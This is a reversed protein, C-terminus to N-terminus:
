LGAAPVGGPTGGRNAAAEEKEMMLLKVEEEAGEIAEGDANLLSQLRREREKERAERQLRKKEAIAEQKAIRREEKIDIRVDQVYSQLEAERITAYLSLYNNRKANAKSEEERNILDIAKNFSLNEVGNPWVKVIRKGDPYFMTGSKALYGNEFSGVYKIGTDKSYYTGRGNFRGLLFDGEYYSGTPFTLKGIGHRRGKLWVGEYTSGVAYAMKGEGHPYGNLWEGEYTTGSSYVAKGIGNPRNRLFTGEYTLGDAFKYIGAGEMDGNKWDGDYSYFRENGESNLIYPLPPALGPPGYVAKKYGIKWTPTKLEDVAKGKKKKSDNKPSKDSAAEAQATFTAQLNALMREKESMKNSVMKGYKDFTRARFIQDYKQQSVIGMPMKESGYFDEIYALHKKPLYAKTLLQRYIKLTHKDTVRRFNLEAPTAATEGQSRSAGSQSQTPSGHGPVSPSSSM